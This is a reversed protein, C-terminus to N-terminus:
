RREIARVVRAVAQQAARLDVGDIRRLRSQVMVLERLTEAQNGAEGSSREARAMWQLADDKAAMGAASTAGLSAIALKAGDILGALGAVPLTVSDGGVMQRQGDVVSDITYRVTQGGEQAGLKLQLALSREAGAPISLKWTVTDGDAQTATQGNPESRLVRVGVPLQARVVLAADQGANRLKSLLNVVEGAITASKPDPPVQRLWNFSDRGVDSWRVEQSQMKFANVLDFAFYLTHGAGNVASIIAALAAPVPVPDLAPDDARCSNAGSPAPASASQATEAGPMAGACDGAGQNAALGAPQGAQRNASRFRAQMNGAGSVAMNLVADQVPLDGIRYLDGLLGLTQAGAPLVGRYDVALLAMLADDGQRVDHMGDVLLAEGLALAAGLEDALPPHLKTGGLSLWYGGYGGARLERVFEAESFVIRHDVGLMSLYIDAAKAREQDCQGLAAPDDAPIPQAGCKGLAVTSPRVCQTLVLVRQPYAQASGFDIRVGAAVVKFAAQGIEVTKGDVTIALKALYSAGVAGAVKWARDGAWTANAAIDITESNQLMLGNTGADYVTLELRAGTIAAGANIIQQSLAVSAGAEVDKPTASLSGGLRQVAEALALSDSAIGHAGFKNVPQGVAYSEGVAQKWGAPDGFMGFRNEAFVQFHQVGNGANGRWNAASQTGLVLVGIEAISPDARGAALLKVRIRQSLYPQALMTEVRKQPNDRVKALTVWVQGDWAQLDYDKVPGGGFDIAIQGITLPAPYKLELWQENVAQGGDPMWATGTDADVAKAAAYEPSGYKVSSASAVPAATAPQGAEQGNLLVRYALFDSAASADWNLTVAFGDAVGKLGSPMAPREARILHFVAPKSLNGVGDQQVLTFLNEGSQLPLDTKAFTGDAAADFEAIGGGARRLIFKGGPQGKGTLAFSAASVPTYPQEVDLGYVLVNAVESPQSLNEAKDIAYVRYDYKGDALNGDRFATEKIPLPTIRTVQGDAAVRDILYGSPDADAVASWALSVDGGNVKASLDGVPDPAQLDGHGVTIPTPAPDLHRTEDLAVAQILYEGHALGKPDWNVGYPPASVAPGLNSWVGDKVPKIQFQVSAIDGDPSTALVYTLGGVKSHNDPQVINAHPARNDIAVTVSNSPKGLNEAKDMAQVFYSHSGDAVRLDVHNNAVILYPKLSGIVGGTANAPREDRYVIYGALDAATGPEWRLTVTDGEAIASLEGAAEPPTNDAYLTLSDTAIAGGIDEAELKLTQPSNELAGITNWAGLTAASVPVPSRRLLTWDSPALGTGIYLRYERFGGSAGVTGKVDVMGSVSAGTLPSFLRAQPGSLNINLRVSNSPASEWGAKDIAKVTYDYVGTVLAPDVYTSETVLNQTIRIGNRLVIYGAVDASEPGSNASWTLRADRHNELSATLGAPAAPARTDIIIESFAESINGAKDSVTLRLVQPGDAPLVQWQLLVGNTVPTTASLLESWRNATARTGPAIALTYDSFNADSASGTINMGQRVYTAHADGASAPTKIVAIPASNDIVINSRAQGTQGALDEASLVLTYEGDALAAINWAKAITQLAGSASPGGSALETANEPAGGQGLRLKYNALNKELVSGGIDIIGNVAVRASLYSDALPASFAVKPATNDIEFPKRLETINEAMDRAVIKLSYKGEPLGDLTTLVGSRLAGKGEAVLRWNDLPANSALYVKYNDLNADGISALLPTKGSVVQFDPNELVVKPPANDLAFESIEVDLGHSLSGTDTGAEIAAEIAVVNVQKAPDKPDRAADVQKGDKNIVHVFYRIPGGASAPPQSAQAFTSNVFSLLIAFLVIGFLSYRVSM